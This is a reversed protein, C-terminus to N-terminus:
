QKTWNAINWYDTDWPTYNLNQLTKTRGFVSKRDVVPILVFQQMLIDNMQKFLGARKEPDLESQAQDWLKDYEPNAYRQYNRGSWTNAKSAIHRSHWRTMDSQPDIVPTGTFMEVDAYFKSNTDPNGADSSFFVSADISKLETKIGVKEWGDKVIQQTKQRLTTVSTQFLVAM